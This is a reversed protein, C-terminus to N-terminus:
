RPPPEPALDMAAARVTRRLMQPKFPKDVVHGSSTARHEAPLEGSAGTMFVVRRALGAGLLDVHELFETGHMGPMSLDCLIVDFPETSVLMRLAERASTTAVVTFEAALLRTVLRCIAEDDDVVLVRHRIAQSAPEPLDAPRRNPEPEISRPAHEHTERM